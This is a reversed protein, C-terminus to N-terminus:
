SAVNLTLAAIFASRDRKLVFYWNINFSGPTKLRLAGGPTECM